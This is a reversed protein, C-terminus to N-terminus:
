IVSFRYVMTAQYMEGPKLVTSPFASQNPSDPFYQPEVCLGSRRPYVRGGKGTIHGNLFNGTYFQFAPTDALVEMVRGSLPDEIRAVCSIGESAMRRLFNHDYGGIVALLPDDNNIRAGISMPSLFDLPTGAVSRIEGTPIFNSDVPTFSDANLTVRHGMVDGRCALNFYSHHTLNVVTEQDTFASFELRLENQDTLAYVATVSLNGPFGEDGDRSVHRLELAPGRVTMVPTPTWVVKDFGKMGGHLCCGHGNTSLKYLKGNLPFQGGSIRNAYRGVICGFYPSNDRVYGALSDYGLVVDGMLGTRDPIELSQIIGGYNMIRVKAGRSNTLTFISVDRGGDLLGIKESTIEADM